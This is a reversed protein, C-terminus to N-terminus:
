TMLSSEGEGSGRKGERGKRNRVFTEAKNFFFRKPPFPIKGDERQRQVAEYKILTLHLKRNYTHM